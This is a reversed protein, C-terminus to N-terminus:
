IVNYTIRWASYLIPRRPTSEFSQEARERVGGAFRAAARELQDRIENRVADLGTTELDFVIFRPPLIALNVAERRPEIWTSPSSTFLACKRLLLLILVAIVAIILWAM